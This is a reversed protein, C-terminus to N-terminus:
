HQGQPDRPADQVQRPGPACKGQPDQGDGDREDRRAVSRSRAEVGTLSSLM